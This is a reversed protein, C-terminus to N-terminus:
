PKQRFYLPMWRHLLSESSKIKQPPSPTNETCSVGQSLLMFLIWSQDGEPWPEGYLEM